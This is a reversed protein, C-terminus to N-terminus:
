FLSKQTETNTDVSIIGYQGDFGPIVKINGDRVKGINDAMEPFDKRLNDIDENMLIHLESGFRKIMSDYIKIVKSSSRSKIGISEAIIKDLEVLKIFPAFLKNDSFGEQRDALKDVQNLVGIM